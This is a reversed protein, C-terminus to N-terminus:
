LKWLMMWVGKIINYFIGVFGFWYIGIKELIYIDFFVGNLNVEICFVDRVYWWGGYYDIICVRGNYGDNDCDLISFLVNNVFCFRDIFM